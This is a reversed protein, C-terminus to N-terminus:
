QTGTSSRSNVSNLRDGHSSYASESIVKTMKFTPQYAPMEIGSDALDDDAVATPSVVNQLISAKSKSVLKLAGKQSKTM